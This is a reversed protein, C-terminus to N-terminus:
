VGQADLFLQNKGQVNTRSPRKYVFDSNESIIKEM